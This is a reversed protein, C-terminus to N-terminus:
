GMQWFADAGEFPVCHVLEMLLEAAAVAKEPERSAEMAHIYYHNAGPHRPNIRLVEELTRVINPTWPQPEGNEWLDWPHLNMEAEAYLAGVDANDPHARWVKRMAKAYAEDLLSRDEPQPSAYRKELAGILAQELPTTDAALRKAHSLAEWAAEAREPPVLPFNIHPGNVLAIGWYAMACEPDLELARRFETQAAHHAFAYTWTLGRDFARQAEPSTTTIKFSHNGLRSPVAEASHSRNPTLLMSCFAALGVPLLIILRNM